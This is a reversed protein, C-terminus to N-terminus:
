KGVYAGGALSFALNGLAPTVASCAGAGLNTASLAINCNVVSPNAVTACCATTSGQLLPSVIPLTTAATNAISYYVTGENNFSGNGWLLGTQTGSFAATLDITSGPTLVVSFGAHNDIQVEGFLNYGSFTSNCTEASLLFPANFLYVNHLSVAGTGGAGASNYNSIVGASMGASPQMQVGNALTIPQVAGGQVGGQFNSNIDVVWNEYSVVAQNIFVQKEFFDEVLQVHNGIVLSDDGYGVGGTGRTPSATPVVCRDLIVTAFDAIGSGIPTINIINARAGSLVSIVDAAAWGNDELGPSAPSGASPIATVQVPQSLRAVASTNGVWAASNPSRTTDIILNEANGTIAPSLTVQFRTNSSAVKATVSSITAATSTTSCKWVLTSGNILTTYNGAGPQPILVPSWIVPTQLNVDNSMTTITTDQQYAPGTTGWRAFMEGTTLCPGQNSGASGCTSQSCNNADSACTSTNQGDVFWTTQLWFPNVIPPRVGGAAGFKGHVPPKIKSPAAPGTAFFAQDCGDSKGDTRVCDYFTQCKDLAMGGCDSRNVRPLSTDPPTPITCSGPYTAWAWQTVKVAPASMEDVRPTISGAGTSRVCAIACVALLALSSFYRIFSKM